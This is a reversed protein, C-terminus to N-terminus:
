ILRKKVKKCTRVFEKQDYSVNVRAGTSNGNKRQKAIGELVSKFM